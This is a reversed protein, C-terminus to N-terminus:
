GGFFKRVVHLTTQRSVVAISELLPIDKPCAEVCNGSKACDHIGGEQMLTEIREAKLESGVPHENFLRAQNIVSGSLLRL